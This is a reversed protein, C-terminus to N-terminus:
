CTVSPKRLSEILSVMLTLTSGAELNLKLTQHAAVLTVNNPHRSDSNCVIHSTTCQLTPSPLSKIEAGCLTMTFLYVEHYGHLFQPSPFLKALM